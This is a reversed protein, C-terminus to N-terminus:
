DRAQRVRRLRWTYIEAYPLWSVELSLCDELGIVRGRVTHAAGLWRYLKVGDTLYRGRLAAPSCTAARGSGAAAVSTNRGRFSISM